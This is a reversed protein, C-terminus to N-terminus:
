HVSDNEVPIIYERIAKLKAPGIGNVNVLDDISQFHGHKQRYQIIRAALTLGIEPLMRLSDAPATNINIRLQSPEVQTAPHHRATAKGNRFQAPDIQKTILDPYIVAKSKQYIVVAGGALLLFTLLFVVRIDAPTFYSPTEDPMFRECILCLVISM